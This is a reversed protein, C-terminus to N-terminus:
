GYVIDGYVVIQLIGDAWCADADDLDAFHSGCHHYNKAVAFEYAAQLDAVTIVKTVIHSDYGQLDTTDGSLRFEGPTDWDGSEFRSAVWHDGAYEWGSGLVTSWLEQETVKVAILGKRQRQYAYDIM